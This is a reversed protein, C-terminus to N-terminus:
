VYMMSRGAFTHTHTYYQIYIYLIYYIINYIYIIIYIYIYMRLSLALSLSVQNLWQSGDQISQYFSASRRMLDWNDGAGWSAAPLVQSIMIKTVWFIQNQKPGLNVGVYILLSPGLSSKLGFRMNM